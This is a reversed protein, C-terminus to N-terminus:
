RKTNWARGSLLFAGFRTGRVGVHYTPGLAAGTIIMVVLFKMGAHLPWPAMLGQLVIVIPLHALYIWYSADSLYRLGKRPSRFTELFM